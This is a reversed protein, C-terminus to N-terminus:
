FRTEPRFVYKFIVLPAIIMAVAAHLALIMLLVRHLLRQRRYRDRFEKLRRM